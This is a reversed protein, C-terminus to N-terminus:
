LISLFGLPLNAGTLSSKHTSWPFVPWFVRRGPVDFPYLFILDIGQQVFEFTAENQKSVLVNGVM